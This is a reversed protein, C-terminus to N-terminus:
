GALGTMCGTFSQWFATQSVPTQLAHVVVFLSGGIVYVAHPKGRSRWDHVMGVVLILASLASPALDLMPTPFDPSPLFAIFWRAFAAPLIAVTALIMLRKHAQPQKVKV